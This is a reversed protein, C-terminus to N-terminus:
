GDCLSIRSCLSCSNRCALSHSTGPYNGKMEKLKSFLREFNELDGGGTTLSALEQIDLDLMPDSILIPWLNNRCTSPVLLALERHASPCCSLAPVPWSSPQAQQAAPSCDGRMRVASILFPVSSGKSSHSAGAVQESLCGGRAVCETSVPYM